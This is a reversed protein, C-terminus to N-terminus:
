RLIDIRACNIFSTPTYAFIDMDVSGGSCPSLVSLGLHRCTFSSDPSPASMPFLLYSSHLSLVFSSLTRIFIFAFSSLFRILLSAISDVPSHIAIPSCQCAFSIGPSLISLRYFRCKFSGLSSLCSRRFFRYAFSTISLRFAHYDISAVRSLFPSAFSAVHSLVSPRFDFTWMTPLHAIRRCLM